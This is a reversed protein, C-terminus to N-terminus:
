LTSQASALRVANGDRVMRDHKALVQNISFFRLPTAAAARAAFPAPVSPLLDFPASLGFETAVRAPKKLKPRAAAPATVAAALALALMVRATRRAGLESWM